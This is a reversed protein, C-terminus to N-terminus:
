RETWRIGVWVREGGVAGSGARRKRGRRRGNEVHAKCTGAVRSDPCVMRRRVSGICVSGILASGRRWYEEVIFERRRVAVRISLRGAPVWVTDFIRGCSTSEFLLVRVSKGGVLTAKDIKGLCRFLVVFSLLLVISKQMLPPM